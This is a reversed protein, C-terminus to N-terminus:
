IAIMVWKLSIFKHLFGVLIKGLLLRLHLFLTAWSHLARLIYKCM